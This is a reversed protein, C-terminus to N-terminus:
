PTGARRPFAHRVRRHERDSTEQREVAADGLEKGPSVFGAPPIPLRTQTASASPYSRGPMGFGNAVACIMSTTLRPLAEGRLYGARPRRFSGGFGALGRLVVDSLGAGPVIGLWRRQARFRWSRGTVGSTAPELGTAGTSFMRCLPMKTAQNACDVAPKRRTGRQDRLLYFLAQKCTKEGRCAPVRPWGGARIEGPSGSLPCFPRLRQRSHRRTSLRANDDGSRSAPSMSAANRSATSCALLPTDAGEEHRRSSV